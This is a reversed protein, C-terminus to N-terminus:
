GPSIGGASPRSLLSRFSLRGPARLSRAHPPKTKTTKRSLLGNSLGRVNRRGRHGNGNRHEATSTRNRGNTTPLRRRRDRRLRTDRAGRTQTRGTTITTKDRRTCICRVNGREKRDARRDDASQRRGRTRQRQGNEKYIKVQWKRLARALMLQAHVPRHGQMDTGETPPTSGDLLYRHRVHAPLPCCNLRGHASLSTEEEWTKGRGRAENQNEKM